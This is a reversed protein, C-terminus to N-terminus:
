MDKYTLLEELEAATTVPKACQFGRCVYATAKGDVCTYDDFNMLRKRLPNEPDQDALIVTMFPLFHRRLCSLLEKTGPDDRRGAIVVEQHEAQLRMLGCVMEPLALPVLIMRQGYVTALKEARQRLEDRQLLMSLRMLNNLSVSNPSPEAGDQDDKLRLMVTPDEGNSLFYGNDKKDWFLHDQKDQLEEAWILCSVDFSAEYVDLLAEILFAYDELMGEIPQPGQVVSGDEGRYASHILTKKKPNYLHKKIFEVCKLARDLYVPQNLTRAAIALGSIMLGNWSTLFKDDLHPKPRRRRAEFLTERARELLADLVGVELGYCAALSEESEHVILVNKRKLEDHPDQMPDVNGCKRIDYYRCVIDAVTKTPCSPLPETLLRCVESEEWVCFAGERKEKDGHEPYSDADEASYFGGSPHSLDREVYCLIDRAVDALRRDRTVQYAESYTRALQAQDYLMKEFHPVHWRADTSYRHFGKGIHDHIGGRAMMRLTHVTMQLSKDVATKAVPPPNGQLLMARFRLLFNLNVCQPFKPARGFGGTTVDYSRELELPPPRVTGGFVRVDSTQELIQLIRTGQDVLKTRDKRWPGRTPLLNGGVVPKLDPTLWISMPWGGGGSTAQIYTMYVRDVDPREERDVKVNIFNENMIKAIDKNEFSEREMVHCWHCTSYGVSLFILKDEDKAKKFAADGWPYWDVPNSAHQLLYPSKEHALRNRASSASTSAHAPYAAAAAMKGLCLLPPRPLASAFLSRTVVAANCLCKRNEPEHLRPCRRRSLSHISGRHGLLAATVRPSWCCSM